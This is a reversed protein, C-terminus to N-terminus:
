ATQRLSSTDGASKLSKTVFPSTMARVLASYDLQFTMEAGVSASGITSTTILHDSSAGLIETGEPPRLGGPDIDQIGIALISQTIAGRDTVVPVTGFAAQALDGSPQTPKVKSEIVEAVLAIADTQLGDIVHRRLTERGCIIAM